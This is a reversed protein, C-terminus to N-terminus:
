AANEYKPAMRVVKTSYDRDYCASAVKTVNHGSDFNRDMMDGFVLGSSRMKAETAKAREIFAKLNAREEANNDVKNEAFYAVTHPM